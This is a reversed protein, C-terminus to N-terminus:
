KSEPARRSPAPTPGGSGPLIAKLARRRELISQRRSPWHPLRVKPRNAAERVQSAGGGLLSGYLTVPALRPYLIDFVSTM